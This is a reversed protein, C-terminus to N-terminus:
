DKGKENKEEKKKQVIFFVCSIFLTELEPSSLNEGEMM